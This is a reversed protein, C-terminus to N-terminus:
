TADKWSHINALAFDRVVAREVDIARMVWQGAHFEAERSNLLVGVPSIVRKRREGRHNTYDILVTGRGLSPESKQQQQATQAQQTQRDNKSM